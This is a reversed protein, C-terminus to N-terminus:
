VQLSICYGRRVLLSLVRDGALKAARYLPRVRGGYTCALLVAVAAADSTKRVPQMVPQM